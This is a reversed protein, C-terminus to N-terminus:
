EMCAISCRVALKITQQCNHNGESCTQIDNKGRGWKLAPHSGVLLRAVVLSPGQFGVLAAGYWVVGQALEVLGALWLFWGRAQGREPLNLLSRKGALWALLLFGALPTRNRQWGL